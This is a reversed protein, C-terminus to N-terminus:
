RLQSATFGAEKGMAATFGANKLAAATFGAEKLEALTFGAEKLGPTATLGTSEVVGCCGLVVWFWRVGCFGVLLSGLWGLVVWLVGLLVGFRGLGGWVQGGGM